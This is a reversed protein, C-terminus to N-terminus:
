LRQAPIVFLECRFLYQEPSSFKKKVSGAYNKQHKKNKKAEDKTLTPQPPSPKHKRTHNFIFFFKISITIATARM